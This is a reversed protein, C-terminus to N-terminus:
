HTDKPALKELLAAFRKDERLPDWVPNLRLDGYTAQYVLNIGAARGALDDLLAFARDTEGTWAYVVALSSDVVSSATASVRQPMMEHAHLAERVADEKRGLGADIMALLSLMKASDPQKSLSQEVAARASTFEVRAGEHDGRMRAALAQFWSKPYWFGQVPIVPKECATLAREVASPDHACLALLVQSLDRIDKDADSAPTFHDLFDRLRGLDAREELPGCARYLLDFAVDEQPRLAIVRASARDADEYRRMSRYVWFLSNATSVDRPQLSAAKELDRVADAWRGQTRALMGSTYELEPSNPLTLRAAALEVRAQEPDASLNMFHRAQSLHVRGEDPKLRRAEQLAIDALTRHDVTQEEPSMYLRVTYMADHANVLECWALVFKPDRKVAENLLDIKEAVGKLMGAPTNYQNQGHTARLYLDYAVPDTTPPEDIAAEEGPSLTARLRNAVERTIDRQISFVDALSGSFQKTWKTAVNREDTLTITVEVRENERRVAGEVLHSAGLERGIKVLDRKGPPYSPASGGEANVVKLQAISALEDTIADHVGDSFFAVTPDASLNEFPLVAVSRDVLNLPPKSAPKAPQSGRVYFITALTTPVLLVSVIIALWFSKGRQVLGDKGQCRQLADLLERASQPRAGPDVALMSRLLAVVPAPVRRAALQDIPLAQGVQKAHIEELSQGRFPTRGCLLYWLTVGLSYLDSRTDVPQNGASFQEPSAYTPTGVFGHRTENEGAVHEGVAVARALGFDIVKVVPPEGPQDGKGPGRVLMLNSPKIDRHVLGQGEAAELARAVQLGIELVTQVPLHGARRVREELTEGEVLEMVYFCEGEQEGYHFVSAVNPHRLRAATRAERLFRARVAPSDAVNRGIVKLAVPSQLVTDVARYTTGMAGHGLEALTGDAELAIEFHSYRRAEEGDPITGDFGLSEDLGVFDVFCHLCGDAAASRTLPRHCRACTGSPTLMNARLEPIDEAM